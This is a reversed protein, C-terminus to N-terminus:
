ASVELERAVMGEECGVSAQLLNRMAETVLEEANRAIGNVSTVIGFSLKAQTPFSPDSFTTATIDEQIKNAYRIASNLATHPLVAAFVAGDFRALVDYARSANRVSIAIEALLDDLSATGLESDMPNIESIDLCLCSIAHGHRHSKDLEEQLRELLFQRNRLGTLPDTYTDDLLTM